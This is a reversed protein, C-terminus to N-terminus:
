VFYKSWGNGTYRDHPKEYEHVCVTSDFSVSLKSSSSQLSVGATSDVSLSRNRLCSRQKKKLSSASSTKRFSANSDLYGYSLSPSSASYKSKFLSRFSGSSSSNTIFKPISDNGPVDKLSASHPIATRGVENNKLIAEYDNCTNNSICNKSFDRNFEQYTFEDPLPLPMAAEHLCRTTSFSCSSTVSTKATQSCTTDHQKTQPGEEAITHKWYSNFISRKSRSQIPVEECSDLSSVSGDDDRNTEELTSQYSTVIISVPYKKEDQSEAPACMKNMQIPNHNQTIIKEDNTEANPEEEYLTCTNEFTKLDSSAHRISNDGEEFLTRCQVSNEM